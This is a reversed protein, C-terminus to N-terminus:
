FGSFRGFDQMIAIKWSGSKAAKCIVENLGWFLIFNNEKRKLLNLFIHRM